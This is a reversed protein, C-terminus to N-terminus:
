DMQQKEIKTKCMSCNGRIGFSTNTQAIKNKVELKEPNQDNKKTDRNCSTLGMAAVVALSLIVKKM